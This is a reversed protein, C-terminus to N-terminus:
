KKKPWGKMAVEGSPAKGYSKKFLRVFRRGAFNPAGMSLVYDNSKRRKDPKFRATCTVVTKEDLYVTAKRCGTELVCEVARSIANRPIKM